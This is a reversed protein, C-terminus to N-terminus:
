EVCHRHNVRWYLWNQFATPSVRISAIIDTKKKKWTLTHIMLSQTHMYMFKILLLIFFYCDLSDKDSDLLGYNYAIVVGEYTIHWLLTFVDYPIVIRECINDLLGFVDHTIVV